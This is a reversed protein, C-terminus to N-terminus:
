SLEELRNYIADLFNDTMTTLNNMAWTLYSIDTCDKIKVGKYKGFPFVHENSKIGLDNYPVNKIYCGCEACYAVYNNAKKETIFTVEKSCHKCFLKNM